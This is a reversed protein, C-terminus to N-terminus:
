AAIVKKARDWYKQRSDQGTYGGNIRKTVGDFDYADALKNLGNVGWFWCASLAAGEPSRLYDPVEALARGVAKGFAAHNDKFTLQKLGAGRYRWGDGSAPSGNGFRDAYVSNAIAEPKRELSFAQDTPKIRMKGNVDVKVYVGAASKVGFRTPWTNALGDASFNLSESVSTFDGSEHAVQALFMTIRVQTNIEYRQMAANLPELYKVCAQRGKETICLAQLQALTVLAKGAM